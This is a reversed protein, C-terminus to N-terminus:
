QLPITIASEQLLSLENVFYEIIIGTVKEVEGATVRSVSRGKYEESWYGGSLLLGRSVDYEDYSVYNFGTSAGSADALDFNMRGALGETAYSLLFGDAAIECSKVEIIAGNELALRAPLESLPVYLRKRIDTYDLYSQFHTSALSLTSSDEGGLFWIDNRVQVPHEPSALGNGNRSESFVPLIQNNEDMLTFGASGNEPDTSKYNILVRNGFATFAVREIVFDYPMGNWEETCHLMPTVARTLDKAASREIQIATGGVYAGKAADYDPELIFVPNPGPAEPLSYVVMCALTNADILHGESFPYSIMAMHEDERIHAMTVARNFAYQTQGGEFVFPTDSRALFFLALVDDTLLVNQLEYTEHRPTDSFGGQKWTLQAAGTIGRLLESDAVKQSKFGDFYPIEAGDNLRVTISEQALAPLALLLTFLVLIGLKKM